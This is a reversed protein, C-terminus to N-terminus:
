PGPNYAALGNASSGHGAGAILFVPGAAVIRGVGRRGKPEIKVWRGANEDWLAHGCGQALILLLALVLAMLGSMMASTVVTRLMGTTGTTEM